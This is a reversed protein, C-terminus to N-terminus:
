AKTEQDISQSFVWGPDKRCCEELLGILAQSESPIIAIEEERPKQKIKFVADYFTKALIFEDSYKKSPKDRIKSTDFDDAVYKAVKEHLETMRRQADARDVELDENLPHTHAVDNIKSIYAVDKRERHGVPANINIQFKCRWKRLQSKRQNDVSPDPAGHCWCELVERLRELWDDDHAETILGGRRVGAPWAVKRSITLPYFTKGQLGCWEFDILMAHGSGNGELVLINPARLDGFVFGNRHLLALEQQIDKFINRRTVQKCNDVVRADLPCSSIYEMVVVHFGALTHDNAGDVFHLIRPALQSNSCLMHAAISYRKTFKVVIFRGNDNSNTHNVIKAKWVLQAREETLQCVYRFQTTTGNTTFSRLHPFYLQDGNDGIAQQSYFNDLAELGLRLAVLVRTVYGLNTTDNTASTLPIFPTLPEVIPRDLFIAGLICIWPGAIAIGFTPCCSRDRFLKTNDQSWYTRYCQAIQITPDCGGTGIENKGALIMRYARQSGVSTVLVGDSRAETSACVAYVIDGIIYGLTEMIANLRKNGNRYFDASKWLFDETLKIREDSIPLNRDNIDRLFKGFVTHFLAIPPGTQEFPRGILIPANNEQEKSFVAAISATSPSSTALGAQISKERDIPD